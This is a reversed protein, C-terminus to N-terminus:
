RADPRPNGRRLDVALRELRGELRELHAALVETRAGLAVVTRELPPGVRDPREGHRRDGCVPAAAPERDDGDRGARDGDRFVELLGSAPRAGPPGLTALGCVGGADHEPDHPAPRGAATHAVIVV